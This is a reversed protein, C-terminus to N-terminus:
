ARTLVRALHCIIGAYRTDCTMLGTDPVPGCVQGPVWEYFDRLKDTGTMSQVHQEVAEPLACAGCMPEPSLIDCGQVHEGLQCLDAVEQM